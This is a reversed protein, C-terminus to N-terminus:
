MNLSKFVARVNDMTIRRYNDPMKFSVKRDPENWKASAPKWTWSAKVTGQNTDSFLDIASAVDGAPTNEYDSPKIDVTETEPLVLQGLVIDQIDGITLNSYRNGLIDSLPEAFSYRHYKDVFYVSDANMYFVAAEMGFFRASLHIYENRQMTLRGSFNMSMPKELSANVSGYVGTWETAEGRGTYQQQSTTKRQSHCASLFLILTFLLVFQFARRM